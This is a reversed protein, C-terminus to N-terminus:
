QSSCRERPIARALEESVVFGIFVPWSIQYTIHGALVYNHREWADVFDRAFLLLMVSGVVIVAWRVIQHWAPGENASRRRSRWRDGLVRGLRRDMWAMRAEASTWLPYIALVGLILPYCIVVDKIVCFTRVFRTSRLMAGTDAPFDLGGLVYQISLMALAAGSLALAVRPARRLRALSAPGGETGLFGVLTIVPLLAPVVSVAGYRWPDHAQRMLPDTLFEGVFLREAWLAFAMSAVIWAARGMRSKRPASEGLPLAAVAEEVTAVLHLRGGLEEIRAAHEGADLEDGAPLIIECRACGMPAPPLTELWRTVAQLKERLHSVPVVRGLQEPPGDLDLTGTVVLRDTRMRWGYRHSAAALLLGLDLSRGEEPREATGIPNSSASLCLFDVVPAPADGPLRWEADLRELAREVIPVSTAYESLRARQEATRAPAPTTGVLLDEVSFGRRPLEVIVRVHGPAGAPLGLDAAGSGGEVATRAKAALTELGARSAAESALEEFAERAVPDGSWVRSWHSGSGTTAASELLRRIMDGRDDLRYRVGRGLFRTWIGPNERHAAAQEVARAFARPWYSQASSNIDPGAM